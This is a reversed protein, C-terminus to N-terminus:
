RCIYIQVMYYLRSCIIFVLAVLLLLVLLKKNQQMMMVVFKMMRKVMMMLEAAEKFQNGDEYPPSTFYFLIHWLYLKATGDGPMETKGDRAPAAGMEQIQSYMVRAISPHYEGLWPFVDGVLTVGVADLENQLINKIFKKHENVISYCEECHCTLIARDFLSGEQRSRPYCPSDKKGVGHMKLNAASLQIRLSHTPNMTQCVNILPFAKNVYIQSTPKCTTPRPHQFNIKAYTRKATNGDEGVENVACVFPHERVCKDLEGGDNGLQLVNSEYALKPISPSIQIFNSIQSKQESNFSDWVTFCRNKEALKYAIDDSFKWSTLWNRAITKNDELKSSKSNEDGYVVLLISDTVNSSIERLEAWHDVTADRRQPTVLTRTQRADIVVVVTIPEVTAWDEYSTSYDSIDVGKLKLDELLSKVRVVAHRFSELKHYVLVKHKLM